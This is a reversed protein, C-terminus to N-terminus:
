KARVRLGEGIVPENDALLDSFEQVIKIRTPEDEKESVLNLRRVDRENWLYADYLYATSHPLGSKDKHLFEGAFMCLTDVPFEDGLTRVPALMRFGSDVIYARKLVVMVICSDGDAKDTVALGPHPVPLDSRTMSVLKPICYPLKKASAYKKTVESLSKPSGEPLEEDREQLFTFHSKVMHKLAMRYFSQASKPM